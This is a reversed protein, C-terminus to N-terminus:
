EEATRAGPKGGRPLHRFNAWFDMLGVVSAVMFSVELDIMLFILLVRGICGVGKRSLLALLVALGQLAFLPRLALIANAGVMLLQNGYTPIVRSVGCAAVGAIFAVVAWAPVDFSTVDWAVVKEQSARIASLRAGAHALLVSVLASAYYITPWFVALVAKITPVQAQAELGAQAVYQTAIADIASSVYSSMDQGSAWLGVADIAILVFMTIIVLIFEPTLGSRRRAMLWAVLLGVVCEVVSGAMLGSSLFVGSLVMPVGTAALVALWTRSPRGSTALVAGYAVLFAAVLSFYSSGLGGAVCWLLAVPLAVGTGGRHPDLGYRAISSDTPAGVTSRETDPEDQM